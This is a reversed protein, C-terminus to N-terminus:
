QLCCLTAHLGAGTAGQWEPLSLADLDAPRTAAIPAAGHVLLELGGLDRVAAEIAAQWEGRSACGADLCAVKAGLRELGRALPAVLTLGQAAIVVRSGAMSHSAVGGAVDNM